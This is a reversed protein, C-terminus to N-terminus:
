NEDEETGEDECEEAVIEIYFDPYTMLMKFMKLKAEAKDEAEIIEYKRPRAIIEVKYKKM